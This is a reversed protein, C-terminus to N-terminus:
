NRLPKGKTLMYEIREISKQEACLSVFAEREIDLLYQEDVSTFPGAKSGGTLVYALKKAIFADHESIKGAKVFGKLSVEVAIRGAGGPLKFTEPEPPNYNTSLSLITKKAENLILELSRNSLFSELVLLSNQKISANCYKIYNDDNIPHNNLDIISTIDNM